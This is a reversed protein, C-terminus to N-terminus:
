VTSKKNTTLNPLKVSPKHPDPASRMLLTQRDNVASINSSFQQQARQLCAMMEIKVGIRNQEPVKLLEKHLSLCFLKDDDQEMTQSKSTIQQKVVNLFATDAPSMKKKRFEKPQNPPPRGVGGIDDYAESSNTTITINSETPKNSVSGELFM